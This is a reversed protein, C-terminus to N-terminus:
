DSPNLGHLTPMLVARHHAAMLALRAQATARVNHSHVVHPRLHRICRALGATARAMSVAAGRSTTPLAVHAAGAVTVKGTWAGPGAAVVVRDGHGTADRALQLVLREMGGPSLGPLVHLIRM